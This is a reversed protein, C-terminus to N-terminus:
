KFRRGVGLYIGVCGYGPSIYETTYDNKIHPALYSFECMLDWKGIKKIVSIFPSVFIYPERFQYMSSIGPTLYITQSLQISYWSSLLPFIRAVEEKIDWVFLIEPQIAFKPTLFYILNSDISINQFLILTVPLDIGLSLNDNIGYRYGLYVLPMFLPIDNLKIMPGGVSFHVEKENKPLPKYLRQTACGTLFIIVILVSIKKLM